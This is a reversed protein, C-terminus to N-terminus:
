DTRKGNVYYAEKTLNGKADYMVAHGNLINRTFHMVYWVRGNPFYAKQTGNKQGNLYTTELIVRGQKDYVKQVGNKLGNRIPTISALEGDLGYEKLIGNKGTSDSMIFESKLQGKPFYERKVNGQLPSPGQCGVTLMFVALYTFSRYWQMM